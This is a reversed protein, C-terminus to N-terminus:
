RNWSIFIQPNNIGSVSNSDLLFCNFGRNLYTEIVKDSIDPFGSDADITLSYYGQRAKSELMEDITQIYREYIQNETMPDGYKTLAYMQTANLQKKKTLDKIKETINM